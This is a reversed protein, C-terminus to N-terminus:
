KLIINLLEILYLIFLEQIFLHLSFILFLIHYDFYSLIKKDNPQINEGQAITITINQFLINSSQAAFIGYTNQGILILNCILSYNQIQIHHCLEL